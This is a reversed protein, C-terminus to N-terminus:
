VVVDGNLIFPQPPNTSFDYVDVGAAQYRLWGDATKDYAGLMTHETKTVLCATAAALIPGINNPDAVMRKILSARTQVHDHWLLSRWSDSASMALTLVGGSRYRLLIKGAAETKYWIADNLLRTRHKTMIDPSTVAFRAVAVASGLHADDDPHTQWTTLYPLTTGVRHDHCM